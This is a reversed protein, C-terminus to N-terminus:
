KSRLPTIGVYLPIGPIGQKSDRKQVETKTDSWPGHGKMELPTEALQQLIIIAARLRVRPRNAHRLRLGAKLALRKPNSIPLVSSPQRPGIGESFIALGKQRQTKIGQLCISPGSGEFIGRRWSQPMAASNGTQRSLLHNGDVHSANTQLHPTQMFHGHGKAPASAELQSNFVPLSPRFCGRM